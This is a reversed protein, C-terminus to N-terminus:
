RTARGRYADRLVQAYPGAVRRISAVGEGLTAGEGRMSAFQRLIDLGAPAVSGAAILTASDEEGPETGGAHLRVPMTLGHRDGTLTLPHGVGDSFRVWWRERIGDGNSSTHIDVTGSEISRDGGLDECVVTGAVAAPPHSGAAFRESDDIKVRARLELPCGLQAGRACDQEGFCIRGRMTHAFSVGNIHVSM